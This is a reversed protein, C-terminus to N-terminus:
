IIVVGWRKGAHIEWAQAARVSNTLCTGWRHVQTGPICNENGSEGRLHHQSIHLKPIMWYSEMQIKIKITALLGEMWWICWWLLCHLRSNFHHLAIAHNSTRLLRCGRSGRFLFKRMTFEWQSQLGYGYSSHSNTAGSISVTSHRKLISWHSVDLINHLPWISLSFLKSALMM